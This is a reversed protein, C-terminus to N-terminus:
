VAVANGADRVTANPRLKVFHPGQATGFQFDVFPTTVTLCLEPLESILQSEDVDGDSLLFVFDGVDKSIERGLFGKLSAVRDGGTVLIVRDNGDPLLIRIEKTDNQGVEIEARSPIGLASFSDGDKLEVQWFTFKLVSPLENVFGFKPLLIAKVDAVTANSPVSLTERPKQL